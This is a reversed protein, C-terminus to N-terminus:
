TSSKPVFLITQETQRIFSYPETGMLTHRCLICKSIHFAVAANEIRNQFAM